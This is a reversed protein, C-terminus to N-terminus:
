AGEGAPNRVKATGAVCPYYCLGVTGPASETGDNSRVDVKFAGGAAPLDETDEAEIHFNLTLITEALVVSDAEIALDEAGGSLNRSLVLEWLWSEVDGPWGAENTIEIILVDEAPPWRSGRVIEGSYTYDKLSM